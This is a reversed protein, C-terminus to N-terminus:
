KIKSHIFDLQRAKLEEPTMLPKNAENVYDAYCTKRIKVMVSESVKTKRVRTLRNLQYMVKYRSIEMLQSIERISLGQDALSIINATDEPTSYKM